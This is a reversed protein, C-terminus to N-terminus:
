RRAARASLVPRAPAAAPRRSPSPSPPALVIELTSGVARAAFVPIAERFRLTLEAGAARNYIGAGAIRPDQRVLPAAMDLSRRGALRIILTNGAGPGGALATVPGDMRLRLVTGSRLSANGLVRAGAPARAPTAAAIVRAPAVPRAGARITPMESEVNANRSRAAAVLDSPMARPASPAAVAPEVAEESPGAAANAVAPEAGAPQAETSASPAPTETSPAPAPEAPTAVAVQPRPARPAPERGGSVLAVVIAVVGLGALAYLGYKRRALALPSPASQAAPSPAQAGQQKRLGSKAGPQAVQETNGARGRIKAVCLAVLGMVAGLAARAAPGARGAVARWGTRVVQLASVLWSPPTRRVVPAEDSAGDEEPAANRAEAPVPAPREDLVPGDEHSALIATAHAARRPTTLPVPAPAPEDVAPRDQATSTATRAVAVTLVLRAVQTVPDIEIAVDEIGGPTREGGREVEVREGLKLFSLDSGLVIVDDMRTRVRARLPAEMGPIFLKVRADDRAAGAEKRAQVGPVGGRPLFTQQIAKEATSSLETFRLGFAGADAGTDHAWVVEGRAQVAVGDELAFRCELESGVDPLFATRLAMGGISLDVADAEYGEAEEPLALEVTGRFPRRPYDRREASASTGM